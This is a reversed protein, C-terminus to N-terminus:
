RRKHLVPTPTCGFRLVAGGSALSISLVKTMARGAYQQEVEVIVRSLAHQTRAAIRNGALLAYISDRHIGARDAIASITPLSDGSALRLQHQRFWKRLHEVPLM